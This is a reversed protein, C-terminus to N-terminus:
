GKQSKDLVFAKVGFIKFHKLNSIRKHWLEYPTKGALSVTPCRNRIYKATVIAVAWFSPQLDVQIFMCRAMEELTRNKSEVIGNQQPTYPVTLRRQIGASQLFKDM